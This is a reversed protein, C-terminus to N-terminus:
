WKKLVVISVNLYNSLLILFYSKHNAVAKEEESM